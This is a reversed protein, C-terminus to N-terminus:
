RTLPTGPAEGSGPNQVGTGQTHEEALFFEGCRGLFLRSIGRLQLLEQLRPDCPAGFLPQEHPAAGAWELLVDGDVSGGCPDEAM